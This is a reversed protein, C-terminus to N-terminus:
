RRTAVDGFGLNGPEADEWRLGPYGERLAQLWAPLATSIVLQLAQIADIGTVSRVSEDGIGTIQYTCTYDRGDATPCPRGVVARVVRDPQDILRFRREAIVDVIGTM